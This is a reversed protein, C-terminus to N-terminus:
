KKLSLVWKEYSKEYTDHYKKAEEENKIQEFIEDPFYPAIKDGHIIYMIEIFKDDYKENTPVLNIAEPSHLLMIELEEYSIYNKNKEQHKTSQRHIIKEYMQYPIYPIIEDGLILYLTEILNENYKETVPLTTILKPNKLIAGFFEAEDKYKM